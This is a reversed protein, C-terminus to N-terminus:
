YGESAASDRSLKGTAENARLLKSQDSSYEAILKQAGGNIERQIKSPLSGLFEDTTMYGNM